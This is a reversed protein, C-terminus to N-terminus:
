NEEMLGQELVEILEVSGCGVGQFVLAMVADVKGIWIVCLYRFVLVGMLVGGPLEDRGTFDGAVM